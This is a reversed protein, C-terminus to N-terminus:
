GTSRSGDRRPRRGPRGRRRRRPPRRWPTAASWSRLWPPGAAPFAGNASCRLPLGPGSGAEGSTPCSCPQRRPRLTKPGPMVWRPLVQRHQEGRRPHWAWRGGPPRPPSGSRTWRRGPAARLEVDGPDRPGGRVPVLRRRHAGRGGESSFVVAMGGGAGAGLGACSTEAATPSPEWPSPMRGSRLSPVWARGAPGATLAEVPDPAGTCASSSSGPRARPGCRGAGGGRGPRRHPARRPGTPRGGPRTRRPARGRRAQGAPPRIEARRRCV